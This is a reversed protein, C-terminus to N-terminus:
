TRAVSFAEFLLRALTTQRLSPLGNVLRLTVHVPRRRTLEPRRGHSVGARAGKPKRGAGARRGGRTRFEFTQQVPRRVSQRRSSGRAPRAAVASSGAKNGNSEPSAPM